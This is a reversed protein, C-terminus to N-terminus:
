DPIVFRKLNTAFDPLTRTAEAEKVLEVVKDNFPTDIGLEDGKEVAEGNIAEIECKRGLRM